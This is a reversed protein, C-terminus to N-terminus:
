VDGSLSCTHIRNKEPQNGRKFLSVLKHVAECLHKIETCSAVANHRYLHQQLPTFPTSSLPPGLHVKHTPLHSWRGPVSWENESREGGAGAPLCLVSSRYFFQLSLCWGPQLGRFLVISLNHLYMQNKHIYGKLNHNTSAHSCWLM